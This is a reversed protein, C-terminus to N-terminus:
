SECEVRLGLSAMTLDLDFSIGAAQAELRLSFAKFNSRGTPAGPEELTASATLKTSEGAALEGHELVRTTSGPKGFCGEYYLTLSVGQLDVGLTNTLSFHLEGGRLEASLGEFPEVAVVHFAEFPPAQRRVRIGSPGEVWDSRMQMPPPCPGTPEVAPLPEPSLERRGSVVVPRGEFPALDVAGLARVFGIEHRPHVWSGQASGDCLRTAQATVVGILREPSPSIASNMPREARTCGLTLGLTALVITLARSM